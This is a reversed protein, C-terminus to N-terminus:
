ARRRRRAHASQRPPYPRRAADDQGDPDAAFDPVMAETGDPRDLPAGSMKMAASSASRSASRRATGASSSTASSGSRRYSGGSPGPPSAPRRRRGLGRAGDAGRRRQRPQGLRRPLRPLQAREGPPRRAAGPAGARQRGAGVEAGAPRAPEEGHRAPRPGRHGPHQRLVPDVLDGHCLDAISRTTTSGADDASCAAAERRSGPATRSCRPASRRRHDDARRAAGGPRPHRQRAAAAEPRAEPVPGGHTLFVIRETLRRFLASSRRGPRRRHVHFAAVMGNAPRPTVIGAQHAGYPSVCTPRRQDDDAVPADAVSRQGAEAGRRPRARRRARRRRRSPRPPQDSLRGAM